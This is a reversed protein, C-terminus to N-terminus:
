RYEIPIYKNYKEENFTINLKKLLLGHYKTTKLNYELSWLLWSYDYWRDGVGANGLDIFGIFNNYEDVLINPLCLDGHIFEIGNSELSKIKCKNDLSKLINNVNSLIEILLLPNNIFREDILSYGKIFTRLYYAYNNDIIFCVSTSGPINNEKLFDVIDKERKLLDINKSVKLVYREEFLYVRDESRGITDLKYNLDKVFTEIEKPFM